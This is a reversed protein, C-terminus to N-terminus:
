SLIWSHKQKNLLQNLWSSNSRRVRVQRQLLHQAYLCACLFTKTTKRKANLCSFHHTWVNNSSLHFRQCPAWCTAIDTSQSSQPSSLVFSQLSRCLSLLESFALFHIYYSSKLARSVLFHVNEHPKGGHKLCESIVGKDLTSFNSM